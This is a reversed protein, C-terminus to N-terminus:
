KRRQAFTGFADAAFDRVNVDCDTFQEIMQTVPPQDDESDSGSDWDGPNITKCVANTWGHIDDAAVNSGPPSGSSACISSTDSGSTM